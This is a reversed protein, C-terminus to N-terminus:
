KRDTLYANRHVKGGMHTIYIHLPPVFVGMTHKFWLIQGNEVLCKSGPAIPRYPQGTRKKLVPFDWCEWVEFILVHWDTNRYLFHDKVFMLSIIYLGPIHYLTRHTKHAPLCFFTLRWQLSILLFNTKQCFVELNLRHCFRNTSALRTM